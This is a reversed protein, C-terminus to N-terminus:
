RHLRDESSMGASSAQPLPLGSPGPNEITVTVWADMPAGPRHADGGPSAFTNAVSRVIPGVRFHVPPSIDLLVSVSTRSM